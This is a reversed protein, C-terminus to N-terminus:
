KGAFAGPEAFHPSDPVEGLVGRLQDWMARRAGAGERTMSRAALVSAAALFDGIEVEMYHSAEAIEDWHANIVRTTLVTRNGIAM